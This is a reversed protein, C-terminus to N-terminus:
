TRTNIHFILLPFKDIWIQNSGATQVELTKTNTVEKM